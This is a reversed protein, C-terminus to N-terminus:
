HSTHAQKMSCIKEFRPQLQSVAVRLENEIDLKSRYKTKISAVASFGIECLYSTAFPLLTALARKGLLPFDKEVGIWFAALTKSKFELRMTSDSTVDIFQENETTSFEAPPTASFPDQIWDYQTPDQVPFYRQFHKQLASIHAKMCPIVTNQLKNVEIFSKLNEFSDINGKTVRQEWM